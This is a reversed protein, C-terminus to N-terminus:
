PKDDLPEPIPGYWESGQCNETYYTGGAMDLHIGRHGRFARCIQTPCSKDRYWYYGMKTPSKKTWKM